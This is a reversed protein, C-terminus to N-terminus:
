KVFREVCVAGISTDPPIPFIRGSLLRLSADEFLSAQLLEVEYSREMRVRMTPPSYM